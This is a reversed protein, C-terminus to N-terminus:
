DQKRLNKKEWNQIDLKSKLEALSASPISPFAPDLEHEISISNPTRQINNIWGIRANINHVNEYAFLAPFNKLVKITDPDLKKYKQVIGPATYEFCDDKTIPFFHDAEEKLIAATNEEVAAIEVRVGESKLHLM